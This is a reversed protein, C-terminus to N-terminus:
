EAALAQSLTARSLSSLMSITPRRGAMHLIVRDLIKTAMSIWENAAGEVQDILRIIGRAAQRIGDTAVIPVSLKTPARSATSAAAVTTWAEDTGAVKCIMRM